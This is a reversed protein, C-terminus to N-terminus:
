ADRNLCGRFLPNIHESSPIPANVYSGYVGGSVSGGLYTGSPYVHTQTRDYQRIMRRLDGQRHGTMFLWTARETFMTDVRAADNGPDSIPYLGGVGGTGAEWFPRLYTNITYIHTISTHDINYVTDTQQSVLRGSDGYVPPTVGVTDIWSVSDVVGTTRLTNLTTLWTNIDGAHLAAEAEILRAEIWNALTFSVSDIAGVQVVGNTILSEVRYKAPYHITKDGIATRFTLLPSATRPDASSIYPLGNQGEGDAVTSSGGGHDGWYVIYNTGFPSFSIRTQYSTGEPVSSVAAAAEEYRGMALLARGKGVAVLTQLDASDSVLSLATDLLANAEQYIEETSSGAKYTFDKEFDLTSLPVGSCFYDALMIDAYAEFAYLQGRVAPSLDPAYKELVGRAQRAQGRLTQLAAYDQNAPSQLTGIVNEALNRTDLVEESTSTGNSTLEDSLLGTGIIFSTLEHRLM